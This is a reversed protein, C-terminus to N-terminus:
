LILAVQTNQLSFEINIVLEYEFMFDMSLVTNISLGKCDESEMEQRQGTKCTIKYKLVEGDTRLIGSQDSQVLLVFFQLM